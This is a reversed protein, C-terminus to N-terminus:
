YKVTKLIVTFFVNKQEQWKQKREINQSTFFDQRRSEGGAAPWKLPMQREMKPFGATSQEM